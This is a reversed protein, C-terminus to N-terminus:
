LGYVVGIGFQFQIMFTSKEHHFAEGAADKFYYGQPTDSVLLRGQLRLALNKTIFTKLGVIPSLAFLTETEFNENPILRAIGVTGGIFPRISTKSYDYILGVQYYDLYIDSAKSIEETEGNHFNLQTSQRDWSAELVTRAGLRVDVLVGFNGSGNLGLANGPFIVGGEQETEDLMGGFQYGGMFAIEVQQSVAQSSFLLTIFIFLLKNNM